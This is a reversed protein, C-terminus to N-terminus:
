KAVSRPRTSVPTPTFMEYLIRGVSGSPIELDLLAAATPALDNLAAHQYYRGPQIGKGMFVLPIHTDYNYPTGHTAVTTGRIWYPELVIELDGSRRSNFGRKM